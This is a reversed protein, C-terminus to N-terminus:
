IGEERKINAIALGLRKVVTEFLFRCITMNKSAEAQLGNWFSPIEKRDSRALKAHDVEADIPSFRGSSITM